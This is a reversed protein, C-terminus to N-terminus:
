MKGLGAQVVIKKKIKEEMAVIVPVHWWTWNKEMSISTAFLKRWFPRSGPDEQHRGGQSALIISM